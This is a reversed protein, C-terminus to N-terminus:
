YHAVQEITLWLELLSSGVMAQDRYHLKSKGRWPTQTAMAACSLAKMHLGPPPHPMKKGIDSQRYATVLYTIYGIIGNWNHVQRASSQDKVNQFMREMLWINSFM